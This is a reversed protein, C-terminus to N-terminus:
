TLASEQEDFMKTVVYARSVSGLSSNKGYLHNRILEVRRFLNEIRFIGGDSNIAYVALGEVRGAAFSQRFSELFHNIVGDSHAIIGDIKNRYISHMDWLREIYISILMPLSQLRLSDIVEPDADRRFKADELLSEVNVKLRLNVKMTDKRGNKLDWAASHSYGHIPLEHHQIYNRLCNMARFQPSSRDIDKWIRNYFVGYKGNENLIKKLNENLHEQYSKAATMINMLRRNLLLQYGHIVVDGGYFSVLLRHAVDVSDREFEFYSEVLADFSNEVSLASIRIKNAERIRSIDEDCIPSSRSPDFPIDSLYFEM